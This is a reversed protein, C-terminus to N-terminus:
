QKGGDKPSIFDVPTAAHATMQVSRCEQAGDCVVYAGPELVFEFGGNVLERPRPAGFRPALLLGLSYARRDATTLTPWPTIRKPYLRLTAGARALHIPPLSVTRKEHLAFRRLAVPRPPAIVIVDIFDAGPRARYSFSGRGDAVLDEYSGSIDVARVIAGSAPAGEATMVTGTVQRFSEVRLELETPENDDITVMVPGAFGEDAEAEVVYSGAAIGVIDFHGDDDTVVDAALRREKLIHVAAPAAVGDARVVRGKLRGGPVELILESRDDASIEVPPLKVRSKNPGIYLSPSWPGPVPFATAFKGEEDTAVGVRRGDLDFEIKAQVADDGSVVRGRVALASVAIAIQEPGGQLEISQQAVEAEGDLVVLRYAAPQLNPRSWTGDARAPGEAVRVNEHNRSGDRTLLVHWPKQSAPMPPTIAITLDAMPAHLLDRPLRLDQGSDIEVPGYTADGRGELRSVIRYQGPPVGSFQFYGKADSRATLQALERDATSQHAATLPMLRLTARAAPHGKETTVRGVIGAGRRLSHVGTPTVADRAEVDWLYVPAFDGAILKLHLPRHAPIVCRWAVGDITCEVGHQRAEANRAATAETFVARLSRPLEDTKTFEGTLTAAPWLDTAAPTSDLLIDGAWCRPAIPRLVATEDDVAISMVAGGAGVPLPQALATDREVGNRDTLRFGTVECSTQPTAPKLSVEVQRAPARLAVLTVILLPVARVRATM